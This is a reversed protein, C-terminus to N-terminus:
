HMRRARGLHGTNLRQTGLNEPPNETSRDLLTLMAERLQSMSFPKNLWCDVGQIPQDNVNLEEISAAVLIIPLDPWKQKVAAAFEDGKIQPLWYEVIVLDFKIKELLSMAAEATYATRVVHGDFELLLAFTTNLDADDDVVLIKYKPNGLTNM